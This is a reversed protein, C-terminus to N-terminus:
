ALPAFGATSLIHCISTRGTPRTLGPIGEALRRRGAALINCAANRDRDHRTGCCSCSWERMGLGERGQPGTRNNCVSCTQTSFAEEIEDFWVGANDCKYRLMTRLAGWGADLVSKGQGSRVLKPANVNGVFISAYGSHVLRSTCKHLLDKRRNAIKAHIARVRNKRRARQASALARELDRYFRPAEINSVSEDSFAALRKLGLDIGLARKTPTPVGVQKSKPARVTVNLYWRGRSDEAFCGGRLVYTSLGFSDWLSFWHGQFLLQGNRYIVARAKFPIWGLSRRAGASARWRLRVKRHQARRTVYEEAVQQFVAGGVPLGARSAGNLYSQLEHAGIFRNERRLVQVSLDNCYNWVLNVALAMHSLLGAYRDKIRLRLVRVAVHCRKM